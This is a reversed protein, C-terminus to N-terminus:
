PTKSGTHPARGTPATDVPKASPTTPTPDYRISPGIGFYTLLILFLGAILPPRPFSLTKKCLPCRGVGRFSIVWWVVFWLGLTLLTLLLHRTHNIEPTDVYV